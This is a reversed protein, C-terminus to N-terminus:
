RLRSWAADPNFREGYRTALEELRRVCEDAGRTIAEQLPGGRFPAFGSGFIVGADVMDQSEVIGERLVAVCENLLSLILRDQLDAKATADPQRTVGALPAATSSDRVVRGNSWRYFGRDTKRGLNKESIKVDLVSTDPLPRGLAQNVIGGVNRCVDLGVMDSLEVPGVPMGFDTAVKDIEDFSFGDQAAQIAEQMYRALVRNVLFGPASRCPLPLKDIKRALATACEISASSTVETHVVEVLPMLAVPNFFHLGVLRSPDALVSSLQDLPISSTNTALIASAKMKPELMVYLLRKAEANEIIAELVIDADAVGAGDFDSRLRTAVVARNTPDKIKKDLFRRARALGSDVFHQELDQLTVDLGRFACWAAIDAGMVGAGVVHVRKLLQDAVKKGQSKLADQLMFVRILNRATSTAALSAISDAEASYAAPGKGGYRAWLDIIAYPAPYHAKRVKRAVQAEIRSRLLLRAVRLSALRQVLIPRHMGPNKKILDRCLNIALERNIALRDVLGLSLTKAGKINRGTLMLDLAALSGITRVARVTGGFGPHIGLRVEPFGLTLRDDNVGVRYRCALALELGGGLAFGEILAVSPCPLSELDLLVRHGHEVLARVEDVSRLTTFEKVDAGLVFGSTKVSQLVVGRPLRRKLSAVIAGLERLVSSSLTNVSADPKDLTLWVVGEADTEEHWCRSEPGNAM